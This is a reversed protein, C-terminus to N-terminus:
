YLSVDFQKTRVLLESKYQNRFYFQKKQITTTYAPAVNTCIVYSHRNDDFEGLRKITAELQEIAHMVDTGKLEVYREEHEDGSLLLVDCRIGDKIICSDVLVKQYPKREPNQFIIKRNNEEFKIQSDNTPTICTDVKNKM